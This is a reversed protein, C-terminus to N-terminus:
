PLDNQAGKLQGSGDAYTFGCLAHARGTLTHAHNPVTYCAALPPPPSTTTGRTAALSTDCFSVSSVPLVHVRAAHSLRQLRHRQDGRDRVKRM